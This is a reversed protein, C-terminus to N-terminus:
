GVSEIGPISYSGPQYVRGELHRFAHAMADVADDHGGGAPFLDTQDLLDNNWPAEVLYVDGDNWRGALMYARASKDGTLPGPHVAAQTKKEVLLSKLSALFMKGAAGREEEVVQDCGDKMATKWFLELVK